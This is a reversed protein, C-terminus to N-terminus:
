SAARAVAHRNEESTLKRMADADRRVRRYREYLAHGNASKTRASPHWLHICEARIEALRGRTLTAVAFRFAVDEFGWETFREDFGNVADWAERSVVITGGRNYADLRAPTPDARDILDRRPRGSVWEQTGDESLKWRINWPVVAGRRREAMSVARQVANLDDFVDADAIIAVDWDGAERAARNIAASRNWNESPSDAVVIPYGLTELHPRVRQWAADRNPEGLRL